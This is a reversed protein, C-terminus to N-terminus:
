ALNVDIRNLIALLVQDTTSEEDDSGDDNPDRHLKWRILMGLMTMFLTIRVDNLSENM